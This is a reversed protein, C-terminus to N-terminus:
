EEGEEEEQQQSTHHAHMCVCACACVCVCVCVCVSVSVCECVCVREREENICAPKNVAHARSLDGAQNLKEVTHQSALKVRLPHQSHRQKGLHDVLLTRAVEGQHDAKSVPEQRLDHVLAMTPRACQEQAIAQTQSHTHTHTQMM